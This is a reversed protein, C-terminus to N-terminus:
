RMSLLPVNPSSSVRRRLSLDRICEFMLYGFLVLGGLPEFGFSNIQKGHPTWLAVYAAIFLGYATLPVIQAIRSRSSPRPLWAEWIAWALAPAVLFYTTPETAQGFVTMWCVSLAFLRALLRRRPWGARQGALCVGAIAAAVVLQVATFAAGQLKVHFARMVLLRIDQDWQVIRDPLIADNFMHWLWRRYEEVMWPGPRVLLPLAMGLAIMLVYRWAFRRPYTVVLLLGLSVPYVKLLTAIAALLASLNWRDVAAAAVAGLLCAMVICSTQGNNLCGAFPWLVLLVLIPWDRRALVRPIGVRSAWWLSGLSAAALLVRWLVEGVPMPIFTLAAFALAIVPPHRIGGWAVNDRGPLRNVTPVRSLDHDKPLGYLHSRQRWHLGADYYDHYSSQKHRTQVSVRICIACVAVTWAILAIRRLADYVSGRQPVPGDM